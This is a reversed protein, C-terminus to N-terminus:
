TTVRSGEWVPTAGSPEIVCWAPVGSRLGLHTCAAAEAHDRSQRYVDPDRDTVLWYGNPHEVPQGVTWIGGVKGPCAIPVIVCWANSNAALMARATRVQEQSPQYWAVRDADPTIM